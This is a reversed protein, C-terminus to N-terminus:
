QQMIKKIVKMANNQYINFLSKLNCNLAHKRIIEIV